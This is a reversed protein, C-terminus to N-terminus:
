GGLEAERWTPKAGTNDVKRITGNVFADVAGAPSVCWLTLGAGGVKPADLNGAFGGSVAYTGRVIAENVGLTADAGILIYSDGGAVTVLKAWYATLYEDVGLTIVTTTGPEYIVLAVGSSADASHLVAEFPRGPMDNVKRTM